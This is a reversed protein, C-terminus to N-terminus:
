VTFGILALKSILIESIVMSSAKKKALNISVLEKLSIIRECSVMKSKGFVNKKELQQRVKVKVRLQEYTKYQFSDEQMYYFESELTTEADSEKMIYREMITKLKFPTMEHLIIDSYTLKGGLYISNVDLLVYKFDEYSYTKM